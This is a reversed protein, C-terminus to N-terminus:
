GQFLLISTYVLSPKPNDKVHIASEFTLKTGAKHAEAGTLRSRAHLTAGAPVPSRFQLGGSGFNVVNKMGSLEIPIKILKPMLSLTLFGHAIPGGFPSERECREVDVHIWQHDDTADAFGDIRSQDIVMWDTHGLDTGELSELTSYAVEM